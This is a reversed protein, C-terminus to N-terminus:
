ADAREPNSQLNQEHTLELLKRNLKIKQARTEVIVQLIQQNADGWIDAIAQETKCRIESIRQEAQSSIIALDANIEILKVNLEFDTM